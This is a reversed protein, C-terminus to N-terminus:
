IKFRELTKSPNISNFYNIFTKYNFIISKFLFLTKMKVDKKSIAMEHEAVEIAASIAEQQTPLSYKKNCYTTDLFLEDLRPNSNGFAHLQPMQMM